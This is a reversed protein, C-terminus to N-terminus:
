IKVLFLSVGFAEDSNGILPMLSDLHLIFLRLADFQEEFTLELSAVTDEFLTAIKSVMEPLMRTCSWKFAWFAVLREGLTAIKTAM